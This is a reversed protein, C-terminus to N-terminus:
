ASQGNRKERKWELRIDPLGEENDDGDGLEVECFGERAYFRRAAHNRQLVWLSVTEAGNNKALDLLARGLGQNRAEKELYLCELFGGEYAVFGVIGGANQAVMVVGSSIRRAMAQESASEPAPNPFWHTENIWQQLIKACPLADSLRAPRIM